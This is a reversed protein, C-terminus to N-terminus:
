LSLTGPELGCWDRWLQWYAAELNRAFGRGDMLPSAQMRQRLGARLQALDATNQSLKKAISEYEDQTRAILEAMGLNHLASGAARGVSTHGWLTIVPVGMCLSDMATTHGSFPFPDLAIDIQGFQQLYEIRSGRNIFGIRDPDVGLERFRDQLRQRHSGAFSLVLLRSNPVNLLIEAWTMIVLHNIKTFRNLSGFTIFGNALAPLVNVPPLKILPDYCWATEPLRLTKESYSLEDIGVPDLHPDSIRWDVTQLGTTCSAFNLWTIQIPALRRAVLRHCEDTPRHMTMLIDIDDRRIADAAAGTSLRRLDIWHDCHPRMRDTLEDDRNTHTYCFIEVRERDHHALLPFIFHSDPCVGFFSSLYGIKLRRDPTRDRAPLDTPTNFHQRQAWQQTEQLLRCSDYDPHHYLFYFLNAYIDRGDPKLQIATRCSAIAEDLQGQEALVLALGVYTGAVAPKLKIAKRYCAIAEDPRGMESLIGGLNNYAEALDPHIRLAQNCCAIAEDFQRQGQLAVALNLYIIPASPQLHIAQRFCHIAEDSERIARLANGLNNYAAAYKPNFRIAERFSRIADDVEGKDYLANGLNNHAAVYDPKVRITSRFAAIAEDLRGAEGFAIGLNNPAEAYDPKLKIAEQYSTIALDFQRMTRLLNGLSNHLEAIEPALGIAQRIYEVGSSPRGLQAKVVGLSHLAGVHNPHEAVIQHYIKEAQELRGAQHHQAAVQITRNLEDPTMVANGNLRIHALTYAAKSAFVQRELPTILGLTGPELGPV